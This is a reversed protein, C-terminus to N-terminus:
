RQVANEFDRRKGAAQLDASGFYKGNGGVLVTSSSQLTSRTKTGRELASQTALIGGHFRSSYELIKGDKKNKQNNATAV